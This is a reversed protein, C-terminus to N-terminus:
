IMEGFLSFLEAESKVAKPKLKAAGFGPLLAKSLLLAHGDGTLLVHRPLLADYKLLGPLREAESIMIRAHQANVISQLCPNRTAVPINGPAKQEMVEGPAWLWLGHIDYEGRARRHAAPHRHLHMQIESLLRMLRGGDDGEPHRDPLCGGSIDGLAVPRAHMAERCCLLLAAGSALLAMGEESLMPNLEACLWEADEASLPLQGEPLLHVTDRALQAHYPSAVWLQATDPPLDSISRAILASESIGQVRACCSLPLNASSNFWSQRRRILHKRWPDLDPHLIIGNDGHLLAGTVVLADVSDTM